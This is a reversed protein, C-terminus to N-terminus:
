ENVTSPTHFICSEPHVLEECDEVNIERWEANKFEDCGQAQPTCALKILLIGTAGLILAVPPLVVSAAFKGTYKGTSKLYDLFVTSRKVDPGSHDPLAAPIYMGAEYFGYGSAASLTVLLLGAAAMGTRAGATMSVVQPQARVVGPEETNADYSWEVPVQAFSQMCVASSLFALSLMMTKNM